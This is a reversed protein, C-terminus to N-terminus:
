GLRDELAECQIHPMHKPCYYRKGLEREQARLVEGTQDDRQEAVAVTFHTAPAGCIVCAHTQAANM